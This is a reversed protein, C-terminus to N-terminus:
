KISTTKFYGTLTYLVILSLQIPIAAITDDIVAVTAAIRDPIFNVNSKITKININLFDTVFM